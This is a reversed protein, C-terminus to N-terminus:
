ALSASSYVNIECYVPTILEALHDLISRAENFIISLAFILVDVLSEFTEETLQSQKRRLVFVRIVNVIGVTFIPVARM